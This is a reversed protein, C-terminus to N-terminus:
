GFSLECVDPTENQDDDIKFLEKTEEYLSFVESFLPGLQNRRTGEEPPLACDPLFLDEVDSPFIPLINPGCSIGISLESVLSYLEDAAIKILSFCKAPTSSNFGRIIKRHIQKIKHAAARNKRIRSKILTKYTNTFSQLLDTRKNEDETLAKTSIQSDTRCSAFSKVDNFSVCFVLIIIQVIIMHKYKPERIM